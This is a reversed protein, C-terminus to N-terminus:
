RRIARRKMPRRLVVRAPPIRVQYRGESLGKEAPLSYHGEKIEAGSMLGTDALPAFEIFGQDLPQGHFTVWGSVAIHEPQKSCGTLSLALVFAAALCRM